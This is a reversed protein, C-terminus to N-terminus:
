DSLVCKAPCDFGQHKILSKIYGCEFVYNDSNYITNAISEVNKKITGYDTTSTLGKPIRLTWNVVNEVAKNLEVGSEKFFSLLTMTALNRDGARSISNTRLFEICNPLKGNLKEFKWSPKRIITRTLNFQYKKRIEDFLLKLQSNVGINVDKLRFYEEFNVEKKSFEIIEDMSNFSTFDRLLVKRLGTKSHISYPVRWMRIKSYISSLDITKIMYETQLWKAIEKNILTLGNMPIIDFAKPNIEIHFGKSGSFWIDIARNDLKYTNVFLNYILKADNFSEELNPSDLDFYIPHYILENDSPTISQFQQISLFVDIGPNCIINREEDNDVRAWKTMNNDFKKTYEKYRFQSIIDFKSVAERMLKENYVHMKDFVNAYVDSPLVDKFLTYIRRNLGDLYYNIYVDNNNPDFEDAWKLTKVQIRQPTCTIDFLPVTDGMMDKKKQQSLTLPKDIEKLAWYTQVKEGVPLKRNTSAMLEYLPLKSHDDNSMYDYIDKVIKNTMIFQDVSTANVVEDLLYEYYAKISDYSDTGMAINFLIEVAKNIFKKALPPINSATLAAGKFTITDDENLSTYTKRKFVIMAKYTKSEIDIGDPLFEQIKNNMEIIDLPKGNTYSIGDTDLSIINYGLGQIFDKIKLILERGHRTVSACKENDRWYFGPSSLIGFNSNIYTKMALQQGHLSSKLVPDKEEKSKRKLDLRINTMDRLTNKMIGLTDNGPFINYNLMLNPYMSAIDSDGIYKYVGINAEVQAGEIHLSETTWVPVSARNYIYSRLMVGNVRSVSGSYMLRQYNMPIIQTLYFDAQCIHRHLKILDESDELCYQKIKEVEEPNGSTLASSIEEFGVHVRGEKELGYQSIVNKLKYNNLKRDTFDFKVVSYYLDICQRGFIRYATQYDQEGVGTRVMIKTKFPNSGNRGLPLEIGHIEARRIMFPLDFRFGNFFCLITPDLSQIYHIFQNLIDVEDNSYIVKAFGKNDVLSVM